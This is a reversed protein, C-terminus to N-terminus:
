TPRSIAACPREWPAPARDTSGIAILDPVTTSLHDVEFRRFLDLRAIPVASAHFGQFAPRTVGLIHANRQASRLRLRSIPWFGLTVAWSPEPQRSCCGFVTCRRMSRSGSCNFSNQLGSIYTSRLIAYWLPKDDLQSTTCIIRAWSSFMRRPSAEPRLIPPKAHSRSAGPALGAM